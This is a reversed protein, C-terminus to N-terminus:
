SELERYQTQDRPTKIFQNNKSVTTKAVHLSKEKLNKLMLYCGAVSAITVFVYYPLLPDWQNHLSFNAAAATGAILVMGYTAGKVLMMVGLVYGWTNKKWLLVVSLFITTIVFTLDLAFILPPAEPTKDQVIATICQGLEFVALPIAIFLLLTTIMKVPLSAVLRDQINTLDLQVLGLILAVFGDLM